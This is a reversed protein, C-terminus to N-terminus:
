VFKLFFNNDPSLSMICETKRKHYEIKIKSGYTFFFSYDDNKDM